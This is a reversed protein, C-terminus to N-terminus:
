VMTGQTARKVRLAETAWSDPGATREPLVRTESTVRRGLMDVFDWNELSSRKDLTM